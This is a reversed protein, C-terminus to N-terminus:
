KRVVGGSKGSLVSLLFGMKIGGRLTLANESSVPSVACTRAMGRRKCTHIADVTQVAFILCTPKLSSHTQLEQHLLIFCFWKARTLAASCVPQAVRKWTDSSSNHTHATKTTHPPDELSTAACKGFQISIIMQKKILLLNHLTHWCLM